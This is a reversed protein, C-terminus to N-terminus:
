LLKGYFYQKHSCSFISWLNQLARVTSWFPTICLLTRIWTDTKTVLWSFFIGAEGPPWTGCAVTGTNLVPKKEQWVWDCIRFRLPVRLQKSQFLYLEQKEKFSWRRKKDERIGFNDPSWWQRVDYSRSKRLTESWNALFLKCPASRAKYVYKKQTAWDFM